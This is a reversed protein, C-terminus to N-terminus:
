SRKNSQKLAGDAIGKKSKIKQDAKCYRGASANIRSIDAKPIFRVSSDLSTSLYSGMRQSFRTPNQILGSLRWDGLDTAIAFLNKLGVM